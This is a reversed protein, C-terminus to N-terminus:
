KGARLLRGALGAGILALGDITLFSDVSADFLISARAAFDEDGPWLAAALRIRPLPQFAYAYPALAPLRWGDLKQAAREFDDTQEGFRRAVRDGSYGQFAQHYFAGGPIERFAIWRDALDTGRATHLYYILMASDFVSCPKNEEVFLPALSNWPISIARGWYELLIGGDRYTGGCRAAIIEPQRTHLDSRLEELRRLMSEQWAQRAQDVLEEGSAQQGGAQDTLGPM